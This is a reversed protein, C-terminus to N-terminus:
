ETSAPPEVTFLDSSEGNSVDDQQATAEANMAAIDEETPGAAESGAAVLQQLRAGASRTTPAPTNEDHDDLLQLEEVNYAMGLLADPAVRRAVDGSARAYLMSQPDTEYKKNSTYGAKRARAITWESKEINDSGKRRGAVVVRDPTDVETWVEHGKSLVLAVMTRAYLGPKGSIVHINQLATLPEMDITAGYMIAAAADDPKGKFHQPVFATSCLAKALSHAAAMDLAAAQIMSVQTPRAVIDTTM